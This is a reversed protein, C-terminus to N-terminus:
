VGAGVAMSRTVGGRGESGKLVSGFKAMGQGFVGSRGFELWASRGEPRWWRSRGTRSASVRSRAMDPALLVVDRGSVLVRATEGGRSCSRGSSCLAADGGSPAAEGGLVRCPRVGVSSLRPAGLLVGVNSDSPTGRQLDGSLTPPPLISLLRLGTRSSTARSLPSLRSTLSSLSSLFARFFLQLIPTLRPLNPGPFPM